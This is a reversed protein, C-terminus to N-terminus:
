LYRLAVEAWSKVAEIAERSYVGRVQVEGGYQYIVEGGVPRRVYEGSLPETAKFEGTEPIFFAAERPADKFHM